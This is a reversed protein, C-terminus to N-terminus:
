KQRIARCTKLDGKTKEKHAERTLWQLNEVADAGGACLAVIHDMHYGPCPLRHLGTAPCAQQNVFARLVAKSRAYGANAGTSIACAAILIIAIKM